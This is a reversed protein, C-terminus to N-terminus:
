LKAHPPRSSFLKLNSYALTGIKTELPTWSFLRIILLLAHAFSITAQSFLLRWAGNAAGRELIERILRAEHRKLVGLLPHVLSGWTLWEQSPLLAM